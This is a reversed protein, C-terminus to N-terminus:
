CARWNVSRQCHVDRKQKLQWIFQEKERNSQEMMGLKICANRAQDNVNLIEDKLIQIHHDKDSMVQANQQTIADRVRALSRAHSADAALQFNTWM